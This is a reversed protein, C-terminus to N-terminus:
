PEPSSVCSCLRLCFDKGRYFGKLKEFKKLTNHCTEGFEGSTEWFNKGMKSFYFTYHHIIIKLTMNLDYHEYPFFFNEKFHFLANKWDFERFDSTICVSHLETIARLFSVFPAGESPLINELEELVKESMLHKVKPGNFDGHSGDGVFTRLVSFNILFYM